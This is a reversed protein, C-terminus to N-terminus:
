KKDAEELLVLAEAAQDLHVEREAVEQVVELLVLAEVEQLHLLDRSIHNRHLDKQLDLHQNQSLELQVEKAQM